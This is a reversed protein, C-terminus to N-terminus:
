KVEILVARVLVRYKYSNTAEDYGRCTVLTVWPLEEHKLMASVNGSSVQTLDRVEYVYQAGWAHIIVKDGYWMQNLRVFPGPNGFADYVHGTLVSNGAHTPFASGNLWGTANGLWSVDWSGNAQPVGVIPMQVGLRPIELWLDGLDAYSTTQPPLATLRYPAFGTAPVMLAPALVSFNLVSDTKGDNLKYGDLDEISTTGCALLRYTGAPLAVGGNVGLTVTYTAPNYVASNIVINTDQASVGGACDVTNFTNDTGDEFLHYNIVNDAAVATGDHLVDESFTISLQTPGAALAAGNAPVSAMTTPYTGDDTVIQINLSGNSGRGAVERFVGTPGGDGYAGSWSSYMFIKGTDDDTGVTASGLAAVNLSNYPGPVGIPSYGHTQTNYAVSVIVNNPLTIGKGGLDFTINFAYGNYCNTDAPGPIAQWRYKYGPASKTPCNVPDEAPRWPIAFAQTVTAILPGVTNPMGPVVYYINLTIPHTWGGAPMSPFDAYLAWASMTVTVSSLARFTGALHIYDGVEYTATGQFSISPYNPVLPNQVANYVINTAARATQVPVALGLLMALMMGAHGWRFSKRFLFM